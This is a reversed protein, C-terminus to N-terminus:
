RPSGQLGCRIWWEREEQFCNTAKHLEKYSFRRFQSSIIMYGEDTIEPITEWKKVVSFGAVILVVEILLVTLLSSLFYGFVFKSPVDELM